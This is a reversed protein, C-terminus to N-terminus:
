PDCSLDVAVPFHDSYGNLFRFGAFTRFPRTGLYDQDNEEMFPAAVARFSNKVLRTGNGSLLNESVLIQDFFYWKGKYKLSGNGASSGPDAALNVLPLDKLLYRPAADGPNDNFDGAVLVPQGPVEQLLSDLKRHLLSAAWWRQVAPNFRSPWHLLIVHLTDGCSIQGTVHIMQRTALPNGEPDCVRWAEQGLVRFADTRYALALDIGREDPSDMHVIAYPYKMLPTDHFLDEVVEQNEVECLGILEPPEWEGCCAIVQFLHHLKQRYKWGNWRRDGSPTFEDDGPGAQDITDFLNEANYFMFRFARDQRPQIGSLLLVLAPLLILPITRPHSRRIM